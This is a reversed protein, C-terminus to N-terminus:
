RALLTRKSNSTPFQPRRLANASGQHMSVREAFEPPSCYTKKTAEVGEKLLLDYGAKADDQLRTSLQVDLARTLVFDCDIDQDRIFDAVADVNAAEFNAVEAAAEM